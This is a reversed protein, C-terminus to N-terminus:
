LHDNRCFLYHWDSVKHVFSPKVYIKDPLEHTIIFGEKELKEFLENYETINFVDFPTEELRAFLKFINVFLNFADPDEEFLRDTCTRCFHIKLNV